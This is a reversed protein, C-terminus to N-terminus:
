PPRSADTPFHHSAAPIAPAAPSNHALHETLCAMQERLQAMERTLERYSEGAAPPTPEGTANSQVLSADGSDTDGLRFFSALSGALIGVVAIGSIMIM